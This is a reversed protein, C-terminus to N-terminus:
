DSLLEKAFDKANFPILQSISEGVGLAMIHPLIRNSSLTHAMACLVGGKATGDMKTIILSSLDLADHFAKVQALGNQGTNGDLVLVTHHRLV